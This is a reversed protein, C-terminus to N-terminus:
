LVLKVFDGLNTTFADLYQTDLQSEDINLHKSLLTRIDGDELADELAGKFNTVATESDLECRVKTGGPKLHEVLDFLLQEGHEGTGKLSKQVYSAVNDAKWSKCEVLAEVGNEVEIYDYRRTRLGQGSVSKIVKNVEIAKITKGAAQTFLICRIFVCM